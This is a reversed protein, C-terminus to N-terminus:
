DGVTVKVLRLFEPNREQKLQLFLKDDEKRKKIIENIKHQHQNLNQFDIPKLNFDKLKEQLYQENKKEFDEKLKKHLLKKSSRKLFDYDKELWLKIDNQQQLKKKIIDSTTCLAEKKHKGSGSKSRTM